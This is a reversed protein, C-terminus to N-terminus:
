AAIDYGQDIIAAKVADITAASGDSDFTCTGGKVDVNVNSVGAVGQAAGTVAKKCHDCMMGEVKLTTNKM